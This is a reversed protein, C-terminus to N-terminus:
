GLRLPVSAAGIARVGRRLVATHRRLAQPWAGASRHVNAANGDAEPLRSARRAWDLGASGATACSYPAQTLACAAIVMVPARVVAQMESASATPGAAGQGSASISHTASAAGAMKAAWLAASASGESKKNAQVAVAGALLLLAM